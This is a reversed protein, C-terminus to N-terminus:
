GQVGKALAFAANIAAFTGADGGVDPHHRMALARYAKVIQDFSAYPSVDLVEWWKREGSPLEAFGRFAAAVIGATGWRELGRLAEISKRIAQVNDAVYNWRDCPICRDEGDTIFYVAVGPDAPETYRAHFRGDRRIPVNSSIVVGSSKLMRLEYILGFYASELDTRFKGSQRRETRPWAPPWHLPYSELAETRM